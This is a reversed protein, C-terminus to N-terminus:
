RRTVHYLCSSLALRWAAHGSVEQPRYLEKWWLVNVIEDIRRTEGSYVSGGKIEEWIHRIRDLWQKPGIDRIKSLCSESMTESLVRITDRLTAENADLWSEFSTIAPNSRVDISPFRERLIRIQDEIDDVIQSFGAERLLRMMLRIRIWSPPHTQVIDATRVRALDVSSWAVERNMFSWLFAPGLLVLGCSDALIEMACREASSRAATEFMTQLAASLPPTVGSRRAVEARSATRVQEFFDQLGDRLRSFVDLLLILPAGFYEGLARIIDERSESQARIGRLLDIYATKLLLHVRHFHEHGLSPCYRIHAPTWRPLTIWSMTLFWRIFRAREDYPVDWLDIGPYPQFAYEEFTSVALVPPISDFKSFFKSINRHLWYNLAEIGRLCESFVPHVEGLTFSHILADGARRPIKKKRSVHESTYNQMMIATLRLWGIARRLDNFKGSNLFREEDDFFITLYEKVTAAWKQSYGFMPDHTQSAALSSSMDIVFDLERLLFDRRENSAIQLENLISSAWGQHTDSPVEQRSIPDM